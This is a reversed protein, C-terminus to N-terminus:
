TTQLECGFVHVYISINYKPIFFKEGIVKAAM